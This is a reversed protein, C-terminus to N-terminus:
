LMNSRCYPCKINRNTRFYDINSISYKIFCNSCIPEFCVDCNKSHNNDNCIKCKMDGNQNIFKNFMINLNLNLNIKNIDFCM